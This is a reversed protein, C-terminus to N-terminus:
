SSVSEYRRLGKKWVTSNIVRIIILFVIALPLFYGPLKGLLAMTPIYATFGIPIITLFVFRITKPLIELPIKGQSELSWFAPSIHEASTFWFTTAYVLFALSNLAYQGVLFYFLTFIIDEVGFSFGQINIALFVITLSPILHLLGVVDFHGFTLFFRHSIPKTIVSDLTGYRIARRFEGYISGWSFMIFFAFAFNYIGYLLAFEGFTWGKLTGIQDFLFKQLFLSVFGWTFSGLAYFVLSTRYEFYEMISMRCKIIIVKLNKTLKKM